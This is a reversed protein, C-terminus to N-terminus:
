PKQQPLKACSASDSFCNYVSFHNNNITPVIKVFDAPVGSDILSQKQTDTKVEYIATLGSTYANDMFTKVTNGTPATSGFSIDVCSGTKHCSSAHEVVPPWAESVYWSINSPLDKQLLLLRDSTDPLVNTNTNGGMPIKEALPACTPCNLQNIYSQSLSYNLGDRIPGCNPCQNTIQQVLGVGSILTGGAPATITVPSINLNLTLLKPNITYLILWASIIFILAFIANKIREKGQSKGQIADTTIYQIGGIVILLVAAVVALGIAIKFIAPLYTGLVNDGSLTKSLGPLPTLLTYDNQTQEQALVQTTSLSGMVVLAIVLILFIKKM